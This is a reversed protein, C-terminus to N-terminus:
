NGVMGMKVPTQCADLVEEATTLLAYFLIFESKSQMDDVSVM